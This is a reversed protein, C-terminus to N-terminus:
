CAIRFLFASSPSRRPCDTSMVASWSPMTTFSGSVQKNQMLMLGLAPLTALAGIPLAYALRRLEARDRIAPASYIAVALLLFIAEYPRSLLQIGLGAGLLIADRVRGRARLRPLAGFVLCGACASVGGGWFSNMWQSLPGFEIAAFVGGLLAWGPSDLGSCGIVFRAFRGSRYRWARGRIESFSNGIALAIGQGPPYISSYTPQQLVFLTEFFQHLPHSANAFRFHALTDGLLLYSFDDLVQPTPIPNGLAARAAPCDASDGTRGHLPAHAFCVEVDM